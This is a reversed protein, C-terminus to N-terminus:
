PLPALRFVPIERDTLSAYHDYNPWTATMVAWVRTREDGTVQRPSVTHTRGRFVVRATEADRLNLVWAPGETRLQRM